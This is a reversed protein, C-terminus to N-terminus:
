NKINMKSKQLQIRNNSSYQCVRINNHLDIFTQYGRLSMVETVETM